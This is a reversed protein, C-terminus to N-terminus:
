CTILTVCADGDSVSHMLVSENMIALCIDRTKDFLTRVDTRNMKKKGKQGSQLTISAFEFRHGIHHLRVGVACKMM